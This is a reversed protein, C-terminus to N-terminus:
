TELYHRRVIADIVPISVSVILYAAILIDHILKKSKDECAWEKEFREMDFNREYRYWNFAMIIVILPIFAVKDPVRFEFFIRFFFLVNTFTLFQIM